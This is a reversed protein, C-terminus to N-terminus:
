VISVVVDTGDFVFFISFSRSCGGHGVKLYILFFYLLLSLYDCVYVLELEDVVEPDSNENLAPM